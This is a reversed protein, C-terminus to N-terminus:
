HLCNSMNSRKPNRNKQLVWMHPPCIPVSVNVQSDHLWALLVLLTPTEAGKQSLSNTKGM